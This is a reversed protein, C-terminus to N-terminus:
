TGRERRGKRAAIDRCFPCIDAYAEPPGMHAVEYYHALAQKVEEVNRANAPRYDGTSIRYGNGRHYVKFM